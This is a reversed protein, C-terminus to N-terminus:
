ASRQDAGTLQERVATTHPHAEGLVVAFTKHARQFLGRAEGRRELECLILGLTNQDIAVAPHESGYVEEDIALAEEARELAGPLDGLDKLLLALNGLASATLPHPSPLVERSLVLAQECSERASNVKGLAKQIRATHLLVSVRLFPGDERAIELAALAQALYGDSQGADELECMALALHCLGLAAETGGDGPLRAYLAHAQAFCDRADSWRGQERRLLGLHSLVAAAALSEMAGAHMLVAHAREFCHRASELDALDLLVVGLRDLSAAVEPHDHGLEQEALSVEQELLPRASSLEARDRLLGGVKRLLPLRASPAVGLTEAHRLAAMCSRLLSGSAQWTRTDGPDYPFIEDLMRVTTECWGADLTRFDDSAPGPREEPAAQRRAMRGKVIGGIEDAVQKFAEERGEKRRLPEGDRPLIQLPALPSGEWSAPRLLVPVVVARGAQQLELARRMEKDCIDSAFFDVSVLLLIVEAAALHWEIEANWQGGPPIQRDYWLVLRSGMERELPRLYKLLEELLPRDEHAYSFFLDLTRPRKIVV